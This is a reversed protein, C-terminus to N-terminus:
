QAVTLSNEGLSAITMDEKPGIKLVRITSGKLFANWAKIYCKVIHRRDINEQNNRITFLYNRLTLVPNGVELAAGIELGEFFKGVTETNSHLTFVYHLGTIVGAYGLGLSALRNAIAASERLAPSRRVIQLIEARSIRAGVWYNGLTGKEYQFLLQAGAAIEKSFKREGSCYVIDVATRHAGVDITSFISSDVGEVVLTPFGPIGSHLLATLRHQGDILEGERTIKITEGNLKWNGAKMQDSLDMVLSPKLKRNLKNRDLYKRALTPTMFVEQVFM